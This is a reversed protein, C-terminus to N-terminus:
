RFLYGRSNTCIIRTSVREEVNYIRGGGSCVRAECDYSGRFTISAACKVDAHTAFFEDDVRIYGVM